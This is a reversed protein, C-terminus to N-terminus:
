APNGDADFEEPDIWGFFEDCTMGDETEVESQFAALRQQFTTLGDLKAQASAKKVYTELASWVDAEIKEDDIYLDSREPPDDGPVLFAAWVFDFMAERIDTATLDGGQEDLETLRVLLAKMLEDM